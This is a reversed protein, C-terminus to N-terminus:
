KSGLTPPTYTPLKNVHAIGAKMQTLIKEMDPDNWKMEWMYQCAVAFAAKRGSCELYTLAQNRTRIFPYNTEDAVLEDARDLKRQYDSKTEPEAVKNVETVQNVRKAEAAERKSFHEGTLMKENIDEYSLSKLLYQTGIPHEEVYAKLTKNNLSSTFIRASRLKSLYGKSINVSDLFAELYKKAADTYIDYNDIFFLAVDKKANDGTRIAELKPSVFDKFEIVQATGKEGLNAICDDLISLETNPNFYNTM